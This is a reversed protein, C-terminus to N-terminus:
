KNMAKLIDIMVLNISIGGDILIRSMKVTSIQMTIVLSDHHLDPVGQLDSDDFTVALLSKSRFPSRLKSERAVRKAASSTLGCIESGGNIFKVEYIPPPPPPDKNNGPDRKGSGEDKGRPQQILDKLYGKNLLYTVHKRLQICEETAHGIDQHFDCWRLPDKRPNDSKKPWRVTDRLDEM